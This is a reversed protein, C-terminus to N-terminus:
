FRAASDRTASRRMQLSRPSIKTGVDPLQWEMRDLADALDPYKKKYDAFMSTWQDRLTRGRKGMLEQFREKVGDPVLFKADEPWGYFKKTLRVEEEGLAEGHAEKTDQRHPSGYGIHSDVIIM